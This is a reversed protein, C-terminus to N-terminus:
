NGSLPGIIQNILRLFYVQVLFNRFIYFYIRLYKAGSIGILIMKESYLVFRHHPFPSLPPMELASFLM